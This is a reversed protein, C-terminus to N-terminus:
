QKQLIRQFPSRRDIRNNTLFSTTNNKTHMPMIHPHHLSTLMHIKLHLIHRSPHTSLSPTNDLINAHQNYLKSINDSTTTTRDGLHAITNSTHYVHHKNTHITNHQITYPRLHRVDRTSVSLFAPFIAYSVIHYLSILASNSIARIHALVLNIPRTPWEMFPPSPCEVVELVIM